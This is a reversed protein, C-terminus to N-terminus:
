GLGASPRRLPDDRRRRKLEPAAARASCERSARAPVEAARRAEATVVPFLMVCFRYVLVLLSVLGVTVAIESRARSTRAASAFHPQYAVLFVNIRNLLVGAIVLSAGLGPTGARLPPRAAALPAGDAPRRRRGSEILYM